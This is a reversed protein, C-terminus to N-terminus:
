RVIVEDTDKGEAIKFYFTGFPKVTFFASGITRPDDENEGYLAKYTGAIRYSTGQIFVTGSISDKELQRMFRESVYVADESETMEGQHPINFFQFYNANGKTIKIFSHTGDAKIYRQKIRSDLVGWLTIEDVVEPMKRFADVVHTINQRLRYTSPKFEIIRAEEDDSVPRYVSYFAKNFAINIYLVNGVFFIAISLQLWMMVSRFVHKNNNIRVHYGICSRRLRWVPVYVVLLCIVFLSVFCRTQVWYVESLDICPLDDSSIYTHCTDVVIETIVLSLLFSVTLMCFVESFLLMFLGRADSGMSKRLAVERQRNYFMQIAFKLFNIMGSLLILSAVFLVISFIITMQKKKFDDSFSLASVSYDKGNNVFKLNRLNDNLESLTTGDDLLAYVEMFGQPFAQYSFYCDVRPFAWNDEAVNVVKYDRIGKDFDYVSETLHIVAGIPNDQGFAKEAFSRSIVVEDKKEPIRNGYLLDLGYFSFTNGNVVTYNVLFPKEKQDKDIVDIEAQRSPFKVTIDSLGDIHLDEIREVDVPTFLSWRGDEDELKFTVVEEDHMNIMSNYANIWYAVLTYCVIGVALCLASILSHVKYKMLNRVAVKLYHLIM